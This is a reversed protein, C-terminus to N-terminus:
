KAVPALNVTIQAEGTLQSPAQGPLAQQLATVQAALANVQDVLAAVKPDLDATVESSANTDANVVWTQAQANTDGKVLTTQWVAVAINTYDDPQLVAMPNDVGPWYDAVVSLDYPGADTYQHAVAVIGNLSPLVNSGGGPYAAIWYNPQAVGQANFAAQVQGWVSASCYITPVQGLARQAKAWGPAQTPTADGSEVDLVHIGLGTHSVQPTIKVQTSNPFRAWGSASWAYGSPSVYGAVMQASVPINGPTVSDYMTRM